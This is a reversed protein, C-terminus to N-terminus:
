HAEVFEFINGVVDPDAQWRTQSVFEFGLKM